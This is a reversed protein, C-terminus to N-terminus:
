RGSVVILTGARSAVFKELTRMVDTGLDDPAVDGLVIVDFKLWEEENEPMATAECDDFARKVSAHMVLPDPVAALRDPRLLVYQLHVSRDRGAFLNKLYRFEWRPRNEVILMQIYDKSVWVRSSRRNNETNREGPLPDIEVVYQQVGVEDPQDRFVVTERYRDGLVQITKEDITQDDKMLRVTVKQSKLRDVKIPTRITVSDGHFVHQPAEVTTVEADSIPTQDGVVITHIPIQRHVLNRVSEQLDTRSHDCGDTVVILGSLEDLPVQEDVRSIAAAMDTTKAWDGGPSDSSPPQAPNREHEQRWDAIKLERPTTAFEYLRVNFDGELRDLLPQDGFPTELLLQRAIGRRDLKNDAKGTATSPDSLNMSASADVLVAVFRGSDTSRQDSDTVVEM